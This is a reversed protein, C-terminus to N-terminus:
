GEQTTGSCSDYNNLQILVLARVNEPVSRDNGRHGHHWHVATWPFLGGGPRISLIAMGNGPISRSQEPGSDIEQLTGAVPDVLARELYGGIAL